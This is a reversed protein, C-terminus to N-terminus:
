DPKLLAGEKEVRSNHALIAAKNSKRWNKTQAKKIANEIGVEAAESMNLNISKTNKLIDERITLNVPYGKSANQKSSIRM